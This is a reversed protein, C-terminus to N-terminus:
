RLSQQVQKFLLSLARLGDVATFIGAVREGDLVLAVDLKNQAMHWAVDRVTHNPSVVYVDESMADRVSASVRDVGELTDFVLLDHQSLMGVMRGQSLVPLHRIEHQRMLARAETLSQQADVTVPPASMYLDVVPEEM